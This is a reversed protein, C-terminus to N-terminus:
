GGEQRFLHRMNNIQMHTYTRTNENVYSLEITM